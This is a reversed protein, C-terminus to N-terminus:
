RMGPVHSRMGPVHLTMHLDLLGNGQLQCNTKLGDDRAPEECWLPATSTGPRCLLLLNILFKKLCDRSYTPHGLGPHWSQKTVAEICTIQRAGSRIESLHSQQITLAVPSILYCRTRVYIQPEPLRRPCSLHHSWTLFTYLRYYDVTAHTSIYQIYM